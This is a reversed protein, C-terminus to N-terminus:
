QGHKVGPEGSAYEIPKMPIKGPVDPKKMQGLPLIVRGFTGQLMMATATYWAFVASAVLVIGGIPVLFTLDGVFGAALLASGAALTSLVATLGINEAVAAIAGSMTIAALMVFWFGFAVRAVPSGTPPPLIGIAALLFYLGYAMWFSGWTGHMATALGDRAKYSWMGALFQALGGFFAAFPFLILPSASTGFWGALNASVMFTAAGFGFLGLISPPAIPSLAIQSHSRWFTVDGDESPSGNSSLHQTTSQTM